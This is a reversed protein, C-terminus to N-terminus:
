DHPKPGGKSYATTGLQDGVWATGDEYFEKKWIPVLEKIREIMYENAEYAARRHPSSVAIVVATDTIHLEGVRHTVAAQTDPWRDQVERGIKELQRVAMSEYAAYQLKRTRRGNTWERVTGAFTVVAGAEPRKVKAATDDASIPQNTIEFLAMTM